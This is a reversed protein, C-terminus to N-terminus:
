RKEFVLISWVGEDSKRDLLKLGTQSAIEEIQEVDSYLRLKRLWLRTEEISFGYKEFYSYWTTGELNKCRLVMKGSHELIRSAESLIIPIERCEELGQNCCVTTFMENDFPLNWLSAAIGLGNVGFYKAIADANKACLFDIDVGIYLDSDKMVRMVAATGLGAGITLECITNKSAHMINSTYYDWLEPEKALLVSAKDAKSKGNQITVNSLIAKQLDDFTIEEGLSNRGSVWVPSGNNIYYEMRKIFENRDPIHEMMFAKKENFYTEPDHPYYQSVIKEMFTKLLPIDEWFLVEDLANLIM